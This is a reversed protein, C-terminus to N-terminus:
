EMIKKTTTIAPCRSSSRDHHTTQGLFQFKFALFFLVFVAVSVQFPVLFVSSAVFSDPLLTGADVVKCIKILLLLHERVVM